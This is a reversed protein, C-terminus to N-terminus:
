KSAKSKKLWRKTKSKLWRKTKSKLWKWGLKWGLTWDYKHYRYDHALDSIGDNTTPKSVLGVAEKNIKFGVMSEVIEISWIRKESRENQFMSFRMNVADIRNKTYQIFSKRKSGFGSMYSTHTDEILILGGDNMSDLLCETTTIQQNYTHGGDDLVVDIAGVTHVFGNWFTKDSQSGIFIEFGEEEWKKANPNLDVGIIRAKPGFYDRWMFLSGGELIGIEVFTIEKDKYKHLFHDYSHFYTSHKISRYPSKAFSSYSHTNRM